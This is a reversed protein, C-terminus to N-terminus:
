LYILNKVSQIHIYTWFLKIYNIKISMKVFNLQFSLFFFKTVQAPFVVHLMGDNKLSSDLSTNGFLVMRKKISKLVLNREFNKM